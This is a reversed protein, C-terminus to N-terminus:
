WWAPGILSFHILVSATQVEGGALFACECLGNALCNLVAFHLGGGFRPLPGLTPSVSNVFQDFLGGTCSM